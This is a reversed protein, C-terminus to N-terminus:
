EIKKTELSQKAVVSVKSDVDKEIIVGPAIISKYGIKRGPFISVNIGIFTEDGIIAGFKERPVQIQQSNFNMFIPKNGPVLNWTQTGAGFEVHRGIVSDGIYSLRGVATNDFIISNKIEVGFGITVNNGISCYKRLLTNTGIYTNNGIYLPGVLMAGPRIVVNEGIFVSGEIKVRGSIDATESIFSGKGKLLNNLVFENATLIDWPYTIESWNKEWVCAYVRKKDTIFKQIAQDLINTSHIAQFIENPYIYLGSIAFNSPETGKKPKEIIKKIRAEEDIVAVGYLSPNEVLSITITLDAQLNEHTEITRTIIEPNALVDAHAVFFFEEDKLKKEGTLIAAEVSEMQQQEVYEINVGHDYGNGFYDMIQDKKYDVVIIIDKLGADKLNHIVHELTPKGGLPLMPKPITNTLPCLRRGIGGALILTKM